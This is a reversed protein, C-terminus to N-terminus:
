QIPEQTSAGLGSALDEAQRHADLADLADRKAKLRIHSYHELM